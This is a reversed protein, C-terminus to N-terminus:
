RFVDKLAQLDSSTKQLRRHARPHPRTPRLHWAPFNFLREQSRSSGKFVSHGCHIRCYARKPHLGTSATMSSWLHAFGVVPSDLQDPLDPRLPIYTSTYTRRIDM